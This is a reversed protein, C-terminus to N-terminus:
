KISILTGVPPFTVVLVGDGTIWATNAAKYQGGRQLVGDVTLSHVYQKGTFALNLTAGSTVHLDTGSPLRAADLALTGAALVTDGDYTAVAGGLALTGGGTKTLAGGGTVGTLALTCGAAVPYTADGAQTVAGLVLTGPQQTADVGLAAGDGVTAAAIRYTGDLVSSDLTVTNEAADPLLLNALYSQQAVGDVGANYTLRFDSVRMDAYAGGTAGGFGVYAYDSGVDSPVNIGTFTNTVVLAGQTMVSTLTAATPNYSLVIDTAGNTFAIPTHKQYAGVWAGNRGLMISETHAYDPYFFWRLGISNAIGAAGDGAAYGAASTLGGLAAAPGRPDNHLFFAFAEAPKTTRTGFQFRFNISWPEKVNIRRNSVGVGRSNAQAPCVQLCGESWRGQPSFVWDSRAGALSPSEVSDKRLVLGGEELRLVVNSTPRDLDGLLGLAAAGRKILTGSGSLQEFAAFGIANASDTAAQSLFSFDSVVNQAYYGGTFAGFGLYATTSGVATLMDVGTFVNTCAGAAQSTIVTVTKAAADHAITIAAPGGTVLNVPAIDTSAIVMVNNTYMKLQTTRITGEYYRWQIAFGPNHTHSTSSPTQNQIAFTVYDAPPTSMAGIDYNFTATWSRTVPYANTTFASGSSNVANSSVSLQGSAKWFAKGNLKWLGADTLVPEPLSAFATDFTSATDIVAQDAYTLEGLAFGRQQASPTVAASFTAGSGLAVRGGTRCLTPFTQTGNDFLVDTVSHQGWRGGTGATFGLYAESGGVESAINVGWTYRYVPSGPRDILVALLGAGDYSVTFKAKVPQIALKTLATQLARTDVFSGQRGFRIQHGTVNLGVAVSNTIKIATTDAYGLKAGHAGLATLGRPDNHLVFSFGDAPDNGSAWCIYSFTVTWPGDVKQKRVLYVSGKQNQLAGAAGMEPTLQLIGDQRRMARGNFVWLDPNSALSHPTLTFPQGGLGLSMAAAGGAAGLEVTAGPAVTLAGHLGNTAYAYETALALRGAAVSLDYPTPRMVLTGNGTKTLSGGPSAADPKPTADLWAHSAVDLTMGGAGYLLNTVGLFWDSVLRGTRQKLTGDNFRATGLNENKAYTNTPTTDLEFVSGQTVNLNGGRGLAVQYTSGTSAGGINVYTEAGATRSISMGKDTPSSDCRFLGRNTVTVTTLLSASESLFCDNQVVFTANDVLLTPKSYFSPQNNSFGMVFSHLEAYAGDTVTMTPAQPSTTTGTGRGITFYTTYVKTVGGTIDLRPSALTRTGVWGTAYIINTQGPAGLVVRGKDVTFLAYGNTGASGNVDYVLPSAEFVSVRNKSLEQYGPYTFVLTGNGTKIFSGYPAAVKGAVTLTTGTETVDFVAARNGFNTPAVTFGRSLTASPGTYRLTGDGLVLNAPDASSDGFADVSATEVLGTVIVTAGAYANDANGLVVRGGRVTVGGAGSLEGNLTLTQGSAVNLRTNGSLTLPASVSHSGGQVTLFGAADVTIAGGAVTFGGGGLQLGLLALGAVDNNVTGSGSTFYATSGAGQAVVGGQWNDSVSWDGGAGATWVGDAALLSAAAMVAVGGVMLSRTNM